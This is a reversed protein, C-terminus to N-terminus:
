LETEYDKDSVYETGGIIKDKKNKVSIKRAIGM